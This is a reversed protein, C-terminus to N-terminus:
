AAMRPPAMQPVARAQRFTMLQRREEDWLHLRACRFSQWLTLRQAMDLAPHDRLVEALRYFPVRAHLHHVHHAGINATFWALPAPLVLHSSGHLAADHLDWKPEHDWVTKEFQHQVYFLWMGITAGVLITPGIAYLAAPGGLWIGIGLIVAIALNTLMASVWYRRGARMQGAPVRNRLVFVFAPVIGFLFLPHRYLRYIARRLPSLQRYEGVTLTPIDGLGREDLNGVSAHHLSHSRRWVDFPTLTVVGLIRGVWENAPRSRFLANHSCDHQILFLRVLFAGNVAAIGAALLHSISLAWCSLALLAVFPVVTLALELVSRRPSPERYASLVRVWDRGTPQPATQDQLDRM